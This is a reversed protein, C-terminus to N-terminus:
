LSETSESYNKNLEVSYYITIVLDLNKADAIATEIKTICTTFQACNKFGVQIAPAAVATIDGKVLIYADIFDCLGYKTPLKIQQMMIQNQIIMSLIGNEQMLDLITQQM